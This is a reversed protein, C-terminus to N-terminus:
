FCHLGCFIEQRSRVFQLYLDAINGYTSKPFWKVKHLLAGGDIVCTPADVSQEPTTMGLLHDRLVAKCSKQMLGDKFLATPEPTLEYYFQQCAEEETQAIATLRTFLITPDIHVTKMDNKIGPRLSDLTIVRDNRKITADEICIGDFKEQISQGVKEAKDCNVYMGDGVTLGTSLSKLATENNNFPSHIKLWNQLKRLDDNDRKVRRVGLEIHQESNKQQLGTLNSVANHVSACRHM